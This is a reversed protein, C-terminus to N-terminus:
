RITFPFRAIVDMLRTKQKQKLSPYHEAIYQSVESTNDEVVLSFTKEYFHMHVVLRGLNTVDGASVTFHGFSARQSGPYYGRYVTTPGSGIDIREIVYEGPELQFLRPSRNEDRQGATAKWDASLSYQIAFDYDNKDRNDYGSDVKRFFVSGFHPINDRLSTKERLDAAIVVVARQKEWGEALETVEQNRVPVPATQCSALCLLLVVSQLLRSGSRVNGFAHNTIRDTDMYTGKPLQRAFYTRFSSFQSAFSRM